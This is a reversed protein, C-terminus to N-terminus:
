RFSLRVRGQSAFTDRARGRSSSVGEVSRGVPPCARSQRVRGQSASVGKWARFQHVRGQSFPWRTQQNKLRLNRAFRRTPPHPPPPLAPKGCIQDNRPMERAGRWPLPLPSPPPRGRLNTHLTPKPSKPHTETYPTTPKHTHTQKITPNPTQSPGPEASPGFSEQDIFTSYGGERPSWRTGLGCLM